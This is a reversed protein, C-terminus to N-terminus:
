AARAPNALLSRLRQGGSAEEQAPPQAEVIQAALVDEYSFISPSSGPLRVAWRRTSEDVYVHPAVTLPPAEFLVKTAMFDTGEFLKQLRRAKRDSAM